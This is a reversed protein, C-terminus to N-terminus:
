GHLKFDDLHAGVHGRELWSLLPYVYNASSDGVAMARGAAERPGNLESLGQVVTQRM